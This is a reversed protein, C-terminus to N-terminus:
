KKKWIKLYLARTKDAKKKFARVKKVREHQGKSFRNLYGILSCFLFNAHILSFNHSNLYSHCVDQLILQVRFKKYIHIHIFLLLFFVGIKNTERKNRVLLHTLCKCKSAVCFFCQTYNLSLIFLFPFFFFFISHGSLYEIIKIIIKLTFCWFTSVNQQQHIGQQSVIDSMSFCHGLTTVPFM